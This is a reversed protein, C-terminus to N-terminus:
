ETDLNFYGYFDGVYELLPVAISFTQEGDRSGTMHRAALKNHIRPTESQRCGLTMRSLPPPNGM